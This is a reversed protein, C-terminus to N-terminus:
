YINENLVGFEVKFHLLHPLLNLLDKFGLCKMPRNNIGYFFAKIGILGSQRYFKGNFGLYLFCM